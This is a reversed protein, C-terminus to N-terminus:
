AVCVIEGTSDAQNLLRAVEQPSQKLRISGESTTVGSLSKHFSGYNLYTTGYQKGIEHVQATNYIANDGKVTFFGKFNTANVPNIKM